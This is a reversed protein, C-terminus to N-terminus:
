TRRSLARKSNGRIGQKQILPEAAGLRDIRERMRELTTNIAAQAHYARQDPPMTVRWNGGGLGTVTWSSVVAVRFIPDSFIM